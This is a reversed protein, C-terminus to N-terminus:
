PRPIPTASMMLQPADALGKGRLALRQAVGFRHQEDVIALGLRPLVVGEQFLAHTGIAFPAKGSELAEVAKRRQKAPLSGSLWAIEIGVGGLWGQLKRLHQEALIDTSAM